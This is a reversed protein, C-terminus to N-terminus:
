RGSGVVSCQRACCCAAVTMASVSAAVAASRGCDRLVLEDREQLAAHIAAVFNEGPPIELV